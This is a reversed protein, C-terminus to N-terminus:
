LEKTNLIYKIAKLKDEEPVYLLVLAIDNASLQTLDIDFTKDGADIDVTLVKTNDDIYFDTRTFSAVLRLGDPPLLEMEGSKHLRVRSNDPFKVTWAFLDESFDMARVQIWEPLTILQKKQRINHVSMIVKADM